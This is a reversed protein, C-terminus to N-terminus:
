PFLNDKKGLQQEKILTYTQLQASIPNLPDKSVPSNKLNKDLYVAKTNDSLQLHLIHMVEEKLEKRYIPFIVEVRRSLNREMWDASGMFM